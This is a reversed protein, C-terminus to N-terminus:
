PAKPEQLVNTPEDDFVFEPEMIPKYGPPAPFPFTIVEYVGGATRVFGYGLGRALGWSLGQGAGNTRWTEHVRKPIEVWGTITNVAGRILKTFANSDDMASATQPNAGLLAIGFALFLLTHSPKRM